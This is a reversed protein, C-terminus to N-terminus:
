LMIKASHLFLEGCAVADYLADHPALGQCRQRITEELKLDRIIEELKYRKLDPYIQRTLKLTDTWPGFKTLPATKRLITRETGINHAVLPVGTLWPSIEEWLELLTPAKALEGRLEGHRGPAFQNFPRNKDIRLYSNFYDRRDGDVRYLGIQWPENPWGSVTGTTEFDIATFKMTFNIRLPRM